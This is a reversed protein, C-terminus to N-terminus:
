GALSVGILRGIGFTIAAALLGFIVMRMGSFLVSKGTFLTIAAGLIFLGVTSLAISIIVASSGSTFFFPVVPIIAGLAFLIFSTIAAEWASGGLEQPDVGLEERALTDIASAPNQMIQTALLHAQDHTLGRAEYILALEEAEEEPANEVEEKEIAIQHSFLERSSQVSLWEGLAMSIAGALLGALGTILVTKGDLAAGAVGMVLSLNSVLGDNAGLVAARLANGGTSRHRGELQALSGGTFGGRMSSTITQLIKNHSREDAVMSAANSQRSYGSAGDKEMNQMTPLVWEPGFRRALWALLRTRREPVFDPVQGGAALIDKEWKEAHRIEVAAMRRYVEALRPDADKEALVQYLYASNREDTWFDLYKEISLKTMQVGNVM